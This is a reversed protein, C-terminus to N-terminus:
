SVYVPALVMSYLCRSLQSNRMGLWDRLLSSDLRGFMRSLLMRDRRYVWCCEPVMLAQVAWSHIQLLM